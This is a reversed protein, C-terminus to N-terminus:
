YTDPSDAPRLAPVDWDSAVAATDGGPRAPGSRVSVPTASFRPAPAPQTLGSHEVFTSRAALHPHHPAETLSLVPAVCADTGDFVETWEARTRTLFRETVAARLEDWRALDWRDPFADAIGLLGIFEAYFQGELPGVAMHGGDSTAYTGYFPCGGDLLNTGRRDQWSGAALMGHIMTALHAAGDVIAADVVQGEGHARAHQLAALVGVVLYLSGGAYDGVLNAPVVPPEDPKGIMSLTGTLALYAIDHGAREALPGDQGWGTMRGYVLKPNRALCAEPGVGLREAVGPRYGEILIDAREVLDLVRAPGEDSKLDLLVSRKNRNTLDSAPDIGLGAGGPRDVRVVDAGLDALLMAAFPGPGIGALEVVRVGTLPGHGSRPGKAM